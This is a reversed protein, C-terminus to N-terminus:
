RRHCKVCERDSISPLRVAAQQQRMQGRIWAQYAVSEHSARPRWYLETQSLEPAVVARAIASRSPAIAPHAFQWGSSGAPQLRQHFQVPTGHYYGPTPVWITVGSATRYFGAAPFFNIQEASIRYIPAATAVRADRSSGPGSAVLTFPLTFKATPEKPDPLGAIAFTVTVGTQPVSGLDIAVDLSESPHGPQTPVPRLSRTFWPSTSNPHYFTATGELASANLPAGAPDSAFIRVGSTYCFVEFQYRPTRVVAGGRESREPVAEQQARGRDLGAFPPIWGLIVAVMMAVVKSTARVVIREGIIGTM